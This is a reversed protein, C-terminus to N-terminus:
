EVAEKAKAHIQAKSHANVALDRHLLYLTEKQSPTKWGQVNIKQRTSTPGPMM